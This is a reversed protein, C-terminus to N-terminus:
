LGGLLQMIFPLVQNRQNMQQNQLQLLNGAQGLADQGQAMQGQHMFQANAMDDGFQQQPGALMAQMRAASYAPMAASMTGASRTVGPRDFGKMQYRLNGTRQAQAVHQNIAHQTQTPDYLPRPQIGTTINSTPAFM